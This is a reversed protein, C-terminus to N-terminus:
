HKYFATRSGTLFDLPAELPAYISIDTGCCSCSILQASAVTRGFASMARGKDGDFLSGASRAPSTEPPLANRLPVGIRADFSETAQAYAS